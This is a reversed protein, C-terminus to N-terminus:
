TKCNCYVWRICTLIMKRFSVCVPLNMCYCHMHYVTAATATKGKMGESGREKKKLHQTHDTPRM